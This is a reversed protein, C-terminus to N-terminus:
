ERPDSRFTAVRLLYIALLAAVVVNSVSNRWASVAEYPAELLCGAGALLSTWATAGLASFLLFPGLGMGSVGAPVSILTRVAPVLRGLLVAAPGHRRFRSEARDVDASAM